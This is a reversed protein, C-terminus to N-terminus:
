FPDTEVRKANSFILERFYQEVGENKGNMKEFLEADEMLILVIKRLVDLMRISLSELSNSLRGSVASGHTVASRVSYCDRIFKYVDEANEGYGALLFAIREALKHSLETTDTSFLSELASCCHAIKVAPYRTRRSTDVFHYFRAFKTYGKDSVQMGMIGEKSFVMERIKASQFNWKQLEGADFTVEVPGGGTAHSVVSYLGNNSWIERGDKVFKSYAIECAISNDKLVWSDKILWDVFNLWTYLITDPALDGFWNIPMRGVLLHSASQFHSYEILGAYKKLEEGLWEKKLKEGVVVNVGPMLEYVGEDATVKVFRLTSVIKIVGEDENKRITKKSSKKNM